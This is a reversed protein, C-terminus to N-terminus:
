FWASIGMFLQAGRDQEGDAQAYDATNGYLNQWNVGIYPALERTVEYRLRLGIESSLLGSGLNLSDNDKTYFDFTVEPLLVLKQTFMMEYEVEFRLNIQNGEAIFAVADIEFFYPAVGQFGAALWNKRQTPNKDYRWALQFDWYPSIAKSYLFQLEYEEIEGDVREVDTKIWFKNLDKGIWAKVELVTPNSVNTRRTELQGMVKMLLPDDGKGGANVNLAIAILLTTLLIKKM